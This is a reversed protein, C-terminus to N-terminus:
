VFLFWNNIDVTHFIVKPHALAFAPPIKAKERQVVKHPLSMCAAIKWGPFGIKYAFM